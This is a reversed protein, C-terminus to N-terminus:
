YYKYDYDRYRYTDYDVEDFTSTLRISDVVADRGFSVDECIEPVM